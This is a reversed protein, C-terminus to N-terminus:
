VFLGLTIQTSRTSNQLRGTQGIEMVTVTSLTLCFQERMRRIAIMSNHFNGSRLGLLFHFKDRKYNATDVKNKNQSRNRRCMSCRIGVVIGTFPLRICWQFEVSASFSPASKSSEILKM